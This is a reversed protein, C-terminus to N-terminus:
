QIRWNGDTDLVVHLNLAVEAGAAAAKLLENDVGNRPVGPAYGAPCDFGKITVQWRAANYNGAGTVLPAAPKHCAALPADSTDPRVSFRGESNLVVAYTGPEAPLSAPDFSWLLADLRGDFPHLHDLSPMNINCRAMERVEDVTAMPGVGGASAGVLTGDEYIRVWNEDIQQPTFFCQGLAQLAGKSRVTDLHDQKHTARGFVLDASGSRFVGCSSYIVVQKGVNRIQRVSVDVPQGGACDVPETGDTGPVFLVDGISDQIDQSAAAFREDKTSSLDDISDNLHEELDIIIVEGPNADLWGRLDSLIERLSLEYSCGAHQTNGHCVAARFGEPNRGPMWHVDLEFGRVDMDLQDTLVYRQNADSGSLTPPMNTETANYSNHTSVYLTHKMPQGAVLERQLVQAQHLATGQYEEIVSRSILDSSVLACFAQGGDSGGATAAAGASQRCYSAGAAMFTDVAKCFARADDGFAGAGYAYCGRVLGHVNGGFTSCFGGDGGNLACQEQAVGTASALGACVEAADAPLSAACAEDLTVPDHGDPGHDALSAPPSFLVVLAFLIRIM